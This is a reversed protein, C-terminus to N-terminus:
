KSLPYKAKCTKIGDSIGIGLPKITEAGIISTEFIAVVYVEFHSKWKKQGLFFHLTALYSFQSAM